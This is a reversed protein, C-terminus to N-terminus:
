ITSPPHLTTKSHNVLIMRFKACKKTAIRLIKNTTNLIRRVFNQEQEEFQM